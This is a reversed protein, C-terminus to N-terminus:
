TMEVSAERDYDAKKMLSHSTRTMSLMEGLWRFSGTM